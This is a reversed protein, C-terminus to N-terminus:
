FVLLCGGWQFPWAPKKNGKGFM